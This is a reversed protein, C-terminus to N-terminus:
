TFNILNIKHEICQCATHIHTFWQHTVICDCLNFHVCFSYFRLNFCCFSYFFKLWRFLCLSFPLFVSSRLSFFVRQGHALSNFHMLCPYQTFIIRDGSHIPSEKLIYRYEVTCKSVYTRTHLLVSKLYCIVKKAPTTMFCLFSKVSLCQQLTNTVTFVTSFSALLLLIFESSFFPYFYLPVRVM